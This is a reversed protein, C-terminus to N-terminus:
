AEATKLRSLVVLKLGEGKGRGTRVEHKQAQLGSLVIVKLGEAGKTKGGTNVEHRQAELGRILEIQVNRIEDRLAARIEIVAGDLAALASAPLGGQTLGFGSHKDGRQGDGQQGDKEQGGREQGEEVWASPGRM